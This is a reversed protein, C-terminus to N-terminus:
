PGVKACSVVIAFNDAQLSFVSSGSKCRGELLTFRFVILAMKEANPRFRWSKVSSVTPGTLIPSGSIATADTVAGHDDLKAKVVV